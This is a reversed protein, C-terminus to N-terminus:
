ASAVLPRAVHSAPTEHYPLHVSALAGGDVANTLTVGTLRPGYLQELRARTNSLGIGERLGRGHPLALGRGSDHVTLELRDNSRRAGIHLSAPGPRQAIGHRLANEVLPQLILPPVLAGHVGAEVNWEVHLRDGFRIQEIDLFRRLLNLEDVLPVEPEMDGNLTARLLDGLRSLTEVAKEPERRRVLGAVANLANFLFHPNLEMRLAHLRAQALHLELRTARAESRAGAFASHRFSTFYEFSYYIGVAACYTMVDMFLYRLLFWRIAGPITAVAPINGNSVHFYAGYLAGHALAITLGFAAHVLASRRWRADDFRYTRALWMVAPMFATWLLWWPFQEVVVFWVSKPTGDLWRLIYDNVCEALAIAICAAVAVLSARGLELREAAPQAPM